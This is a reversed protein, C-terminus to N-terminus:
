NEAASQVAQANKDQPVVRLEDINYGMAAISQVLEQYLDPDMTPTRAMIWVYDRRQRAIVTHNYANDLYVVRYDAKIPWIFQMGWVANNTEEDPFGTATMKEAEGTEEHIFTFTTAITGDADLQYNEIAETAHREPWTPIHAIVYWDGSFRELDVEDVVDLPAMQQCGTAFLASFLSTLVLPKM